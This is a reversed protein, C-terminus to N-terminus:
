TRKTTPALHQVTGKIAFFLAMGTCIALSLYPSWFAVAVAAVYFPLGIFGNNRIERIVEPAIDRSLLHQRGAVYNWLINFSLCNFFITAAFIAAALSAYETAIYEGLLASTFPFVTVTLLLFGNIYLFKGDTKRILSFINHHCVWIILLNAFSVMFALYVPWQALLARVLGGKEALSELAPVKIDLVLLTIAIAFVGDSFAETRLTEKEENCVSM